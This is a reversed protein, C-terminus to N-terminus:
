DNGSRRICTQNPTTRANLFFRPRQMSRSYRRAGRTLSVGTVLGQGAAKEWVGTGCSRPFCVVHTSRPHAGCLLGGVSSLRGLGTLHVEPRPSSSIPPPGSILLEHSASSPDRSRCGSSGSRGWRPPVRREQTVTPFARTQRGGLDFLVLVPM